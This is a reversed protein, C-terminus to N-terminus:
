AHRMFQFSTNAPMKIGSMCQGRGNSCSRSIIRSFKVFLDSVERPVGALGRKNGLEAQSCVSKSAEAESKRRVAQRLAPLARSGSYQREALLKLFGPM